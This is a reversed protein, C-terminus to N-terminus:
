RVRNAIAASGFEFLLSISARPGLSQKSQWNGRGRDGDGTGRGADGTGGGGGDERGGGLFCYCSAAM